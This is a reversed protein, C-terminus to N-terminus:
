MWFPPRWAAPSWAARLADQDVTNGRGINYFTAGRKMLDFRRADFYHQTGAAAPLINIVHDATPLRQDAAETAVMAIRENGKVKRRVGVVQMHLPELLEALRSGIAGYGYIIAHQGLLLHCRVRHHAARWARDEQEALSAPLQRAASLMMALVHQACPENYVSSSNTMVAGRRALGERVAANDYRTYGASTLHSWRLHPLRAAQGPDPQGLAIHAQELLPDPGSAILNSNKIDASLLLRHPGISRHITAMVPEPFYANCWIALPETNM